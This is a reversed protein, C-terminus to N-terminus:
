MLGVLVVGSLGMDNFMISDAPDDPDLDYFACHDLYDEWTSFVNLSRTWPNEVCREILPLAEPYWQAFWKCYEITLESERAIEHYHM